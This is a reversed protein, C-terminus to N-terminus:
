LALEDGCAALVFLSCTPNRAVGSLVCRGGGRGGGGEGVARCGGWGLGQGRGGGGGWSVDWWACAPNQRVLCIARADAHRTKCASLPTQSSAHNQLAPPVACSLACHWVAFCWNRGRLLPGKSRGGRGSKAGSSWAAEPGMSGTQLPGKSGGGGGSTQRRRRGVETPEAKQRQHGGVQATCACVQPRLRGAFPYAPHASHTSACTLQYIPSSPAPKHTGTCTVRLRM